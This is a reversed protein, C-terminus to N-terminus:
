PAANLALTATSATLPSRVRASNACRKGVVRSLDEHTHRYDTALHQLAEAEEIPTLDERQLNEILSIEQPNGKTLIAPIRELGAMLAARYRREGAVLWIKDNTDKRILVPQLVGTKKISECLESLSEPDFQKRPQNPDTCITSVDINFFSGEHYDDRIIPRNGTKATGALRTNQGELKDRTLLM